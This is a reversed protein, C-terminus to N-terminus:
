AQDTQVKKPNAHLKYQIQDLNLQAKESNKMLKDTETQGRFTSLGNTQHTVPNFDKCLEIRNLYGQNHKVLSEYTRAEIQYRNALTKYKFPDEIQQSGQSVMM